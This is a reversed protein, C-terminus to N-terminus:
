AAPCRSSGATARDTLQAFELLEAARERVVARPLGFYRGYVLMNEQVTLEEDLTDRQPVVGLQARIAPGDTAPDIGLVEASREDAPVRLRDHADDVVQRRREPRPLRVVRGREVEM